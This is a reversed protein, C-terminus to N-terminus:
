LKALFRFKEMSVFTIHVICLRDQPIHRVLEVLIKIKRKKRQKKLPM